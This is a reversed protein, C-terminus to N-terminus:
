NRKRPLPIADLLTKDTKVDQATPDLRTTTRSLTETTACSISRTGDSLDERLDTEDSSLMSVDDRLSADLQKSEENVAVIYTDNAPSAARSRPVERHV